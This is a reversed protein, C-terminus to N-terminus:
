KIEKDPRHTYVKNKILAMRKNGGSALSPLLQNGIQNNPWKIMIRECLVLGM